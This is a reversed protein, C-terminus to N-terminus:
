LLAVAGDGSGRKKGKAKRSCSVRRAGRQMEDMTSVLSGDAESSDHPLVATSGKRPSVGGWASHVWNVM